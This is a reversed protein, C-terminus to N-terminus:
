VNGSQRQKCTKCEKKPPTRLSNKIDNLNNSLGTLDRKKKYNYLAITLVWIFSLALIKEAIYPNTEIFFNLFKHISVYITTLFWVALGFAFAVSIIKEKNM